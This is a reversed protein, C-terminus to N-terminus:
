NEIEISTSWGDSRNYSHNCSEVSFLGDDENNYTNFLDVKTGAYVACGKLSLSGKVTGKNISKLKAEAKAKADEEDQYASKIKIVPTGDGVTVKVTKGGDLDHWSAECSNYYTKTSHKLSSSSCKSVDIKTVPLAEDDRNIFYIFDNKISFFVNYDKSIRELFNIDSENTQNLSKIQTDTTQFKVKHGLRDAVIKVISSLKTDVYHHSIKDKQKENFEVGTATISLAKNNTRTVTQVHFLGCNLEEVVTDNKLSKLVLEVKASPKPKPFNPLVSLTVKDSKIGVEDSFSLSLVNEIAVEKGDIMLEITDVVM